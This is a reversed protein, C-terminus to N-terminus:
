VEGRALTARRPRDQWTNPGERARKDARLSKNVVRCLAVLAALSGHHFPTALQPVINRWGQQVPRHRVVSWPAAPPCYYFSLCLHSCPSLSLSLSLSPCGTHAMLRRRQSASATSLVQLTVM